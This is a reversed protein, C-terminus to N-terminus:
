DREQRVDYDWVDLTQPKFRVAWAGYGADFRQKLLKIVFLDEDNTFSHRGVQIKPETIPDHTKIPRWVGIQKDAVQEIASAWQADKLTPIQNKYSDVDRSAQVGIVIPLGQRMALQKADHIAQDVRESKSAGREVPIEQVHDMCMLICRKGYEERMAEISEYVYDVTMRPRAIGEHRKSEGYVWVPLSPRKIAKRRIVDMPVRGWAMDSSTYDQGSQFFAEIEEATQEWTVYVVVEDEAGRRIIDQATKKAMYAM